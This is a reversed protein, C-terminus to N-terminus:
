FGRPRVHPGRLLDMAIGTGHGFFFGCTSTKAPCHRFLPPGSPASISHEFGSLAPSKRWPRRAARRTLGDIRPLVAPVPTTAHPAGKRAVSL